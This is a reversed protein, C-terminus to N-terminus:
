YQEIYARDYQITATVTRNNADSADFTNESIGSVWCGVLKWTRVQKSFDPTYEVLYCTKKYDKMQGLTDTVTDYVLRQWATLVSKGSAGIYDNIVLSGQEFTPKGAAKMVSNGRSITLIENSFNPVFAQQVSYRITQQGNIIRTDDDETAGAPILNDIDTVIFEFANNRQTEYLDPRDTLHYTGYDRADM